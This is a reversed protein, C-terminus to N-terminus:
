YHELDRPVELVVSSFRIQRVITDEFLSQCTTWEFNAVTVSGDPYQTGKKIGHKRMIKFFKKWITKFTDTDKVKMLIIEKAVDRMPCLHKPITKVKM